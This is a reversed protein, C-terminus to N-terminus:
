GKQNIYKKRFILTGVILLSGILYHIYRGDGGTEPLTYDDRVNTITISNDTVTVNQIDSGVEKQYGVFCNGDIDVQVLWYGTDLRHNEPANTEELKYYANTPLDTITIIGNGDTLITKEYGGIVQDKNEDIRYIKFEANALPEKALNSIKAVKFTTIKSKNYNIITNSTLKTGTSDNEDVFETITYSGNSSVEIKWYVSDEYGDVKTKEVLKYTKSVEINSLTFRGSEGSTVTQLVETGNLEYLNFDIGSLINGEDDNKILTIDISSTSKATNEFEIKDIVQSDKTYRVVKSLINGNGDDYVEIEITYESTDYSITEDTGVVEKLSFTYKNNANDNSTDTDYTFVLMPIKINGKEDNTISVPFNINSVINALKGSKLGFEFAFEDEKLDRGNYDLVKTAIISIEASWDDDGNYPWMHIEMNGSHCSDVILTGNLNGGAWSGKSDVNWFEAQPAVIHGVINQGDSITKFKGTMNPFNLIIQNGIDNYEKGEGAAAIFENGLSDISTVPLQSYSTGNITTPNLTTGEFSIITKPLYPNENYDIGEPFKLYIENIAVNAPIVYNKGVEVEFKNIVIADGSITYAGLLSIESIAYNDDNEAETHISQSGSIMATKLEDFNIFSDNQKVEGYGHNNPSLFKDDGNIVFYKKKGYIEETRITQNKTTYTPPVDTNSVLEDFGYNLQFSSIVDSGGWENGSSQFNGIYSFVGKAYDSAVLYGSNTTGGVTSRTRYASDKTIIPGVIHTAEIDGFSLLNFRTLIDYIGTHSFVDSTEFNSDNDVAFTSSSLSITQANVLTVPNTENIKVNKSYDSSTIYVGANARKYQNSNSSNNLPIDKIEITSNQPVEFIYTLESKEVNTNWITTFEYPNTEGNISVYLVQKYQPSVDWANNSEDAYWNEFSIGVKVYYTATDSPTTISLNGIETTQYTTITAFVSATLNLVMILCLLMTFISQRKKKFRTYNEM